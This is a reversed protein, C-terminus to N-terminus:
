IQTAIQSITYTASLANFAALIKWAGGRQWAWRAIVLNAGLVLLNGPLSLKPIM